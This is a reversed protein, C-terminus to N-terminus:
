RKDKDKKSATAVKRENGKIIWPYFFSFFGM